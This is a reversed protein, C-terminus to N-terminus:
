YLPPLSPPLPSAIRGACRSMKQPQVDELIEESRNFLDHALESETGLNLDTGELSRRIDYSNITLESPISGVSDQRDVGNSASGKGKTVSDVSADPPGSGDAASGVDEMDM